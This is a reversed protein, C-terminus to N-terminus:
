FLYSIWIVSVSSSRLNRVNTNPYNPNTASKSIRIESKSLIPPISSLAEWSLHSFRSCEIFSAFRDAVDALDRPRHFQNGRSREAPRHITRQGRGGIRIANGLENGVEGSAPQFDVMGQELLPLLRAVRAEEHQAGVASQAAAVVASHQAQRRIAPFLQSSRNLVEAQFDRSLAANGAQTKSADAGILREDMELVAGLEILDLYEGVTVQFGERCTFEVSQVDNIRLELAQRLLVRHGLRKQGDAVQTALSCSSSGDPSDCYSKRGDASLMRSSTTGMLKLTFSKLHKRSAATLSCTALINAMFAAVSFASWIM